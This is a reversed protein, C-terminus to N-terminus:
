ELPNLPLNALQKHMLQTLLRKVPAAFGRPPNTTNLHHWIHNYNEAIRNTKTNRLTLYIPTIHLQFHSFRHSFTPLEQWNRPAHGYHQQCHRPIDALTTCEPFSWLGGWIGVPPRKELLVSDNKVNHLILLYTARQPISKRQQRQPFDTICGRQHAQCYRQVPCRKCQPQSRTCILAGLDMIAQTYDAVHKNPTHREALTWLQQSLVSPSTAHVCHVRALIRKVNGDLIPTSQQQTIALIAGATSRGIGPLTQLTILDTPFIGDFTTVIQQAARHLNRARQYYGLGSWLALVDDENAHALTYVDPFTAIFRQYYPIVTAVQTQQLMIESLWVRYPQIDQRWPLSSRGHQAYWKLLAQSFHTYKNNVM